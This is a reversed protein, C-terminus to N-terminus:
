ETYKKDKKLKKDAKKEKDTKLPEKKTTKKTVQGKAM